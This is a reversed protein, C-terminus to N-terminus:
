ETLVAEPVIEAESLRSGVVASESRATTTQDARRAVGQGLKVRRLDLGRMRLSEAPLARLADLARDNTLPSQVEYALYNKMQPYGDLNTVKVGATALANGVVTPDAVRLLLFNTACLRGQVGIRNLEQVFRLSEDRVEILRREREEHSTLTREALRRQILSFPRGQCSKRIVDLLWPNAVLYGADSSAISFPATFSRLIVLNLNQQTLEVASVGFFDVFQEDVIVLGDPVAAVMEALESTSFHSGTVRSPNAIYIVDATSTVARLVADVDGSFPSVGLAEFLDVEAKDAAQAIDPTVTGATILRVTPQYALHLLEALLDRSDVFPLVQDPNLGTERGIAAAIEEWTDISLSDPQNM